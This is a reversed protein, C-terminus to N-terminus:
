GQVRKVNADLHVKFEETSVQANKQVNMLRVTTADDNKEVVKTQIPMGDSDVWIEAWKYSANGKPILKVHHTRVGGNLTEEGLYELPQYKSALQQRSINLGFGLANSVKNKNSNASGVYATNLRPRFLTYKGDSVALTEKQPKQWDVRVNVKQGSGPVYILNGYYSDKDRIQANYKEMGISARLSKLNQRNREMRNIISSILGATGQANASTKPSIAVSAALLLAMLGYTALKKM